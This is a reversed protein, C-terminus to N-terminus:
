RVEYWRAFLWMEEHWRAFMVDYWVVDCCMVHGGGVCWLCLWLQLTTPNKGAWVEAVPEGQFKQCFNFCLYYISIYKCVYIQICRNVYESNCVYIYMYIRFCINIYDYIYMNYCICVEYVYICIYIHIYHNVCQMYLYARSSRSMHWLSLTRFIKWLHFNSWLQLIELRIM